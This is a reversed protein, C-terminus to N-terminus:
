WLCTKKWNWGVEILSPISSIAFEFIWCPPPKHLFYSCGNVINQRKKHVYCNLPGSRSTWLWRSMAHSLETSVIQASFVNPIRSCRSSFCCKKRKRADEKSKDFKYSLNQDVKTFCFRRWLSVPFITEWLVSKVQLPTMQLMSFFMFVLCEMACWLLFSFLM